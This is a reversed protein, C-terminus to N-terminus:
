EPPSLLFKACLRLAAFSACLLFPQSVAATRRVNRQPRPRGLRLARPNRPDGLPDARHRQFPRSRQLIRRSNRRGHLDPARPYRLRVDHRAHNERRPVDLVARPPLRRRRRAGDKDWTAKPDLLQERTYARAMHPLKRLAEAATRNAEAADVKKEAILAPNLFVLTDWVGAVWKGEGYKAALADQVADNIKTLPFHGGKEKPDTPDPRPAVGHDATLVILTSALGVEHDVVKFFNDLLRDTEVLAEHEEPSNPGYDHGVYDTASLSLALLDPDDHTGLKEAQIAREALEETPRNAFPSHMFSKFRPSTDQTITHGLWTVGLFPIAPRGSNFSKVWEPLAAMYYTSSAYDGTTDDFWYAENAKHGALLIAARDKSSIGVVRSKGGNAAKLADGVTPALLLRPSAGKGGKGGLMKEADDTVSTVHKAARRDWWDNGVIGTTSPMAGTLIVSHAVATLAPFFDDHAETFTAGNKLLRDFGGKFDARFRTLYDYRCQDVIIVVVLKPKKPTAASLSAALLACWLFKKM